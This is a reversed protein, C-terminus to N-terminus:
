HDFKVVPEAQLARHERLEHLVTRETAQAARTEYYVGAQHGQREFLERVEAHDDAGSEAVECAHRLEHGLIAARATDPLGGALMIRVYRYGGRSTIFRTTGGIGPPLNLSSQIHVIVNSSELTAVLARVSASRAMAREFTDVSVADLPRPTLKGQAVAPSSSSVFLVFLFVISLYSM